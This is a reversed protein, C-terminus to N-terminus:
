TFWPMMFEVIGKAGCTLLVDCPRIKNIDKEVSEVSPKARSVKIEGPIGCCKVFKDIVLVGHSPALQELSLHAEFPSAKLVM